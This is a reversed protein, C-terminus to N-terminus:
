KATNEMTYNELFPFPPFARCMQRVAIDEIEQEECTFTEFVRLLTALQIGKVASIYRVALRIVEVKM